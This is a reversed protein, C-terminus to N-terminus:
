ANLAKVRKALNSVRRSATNRHLVGKTVGRMIEPQALRFAASAAQGDGSEIASEVRRIFTRIRSNRSRNVQTRRLAQKARKRAQRSNAM